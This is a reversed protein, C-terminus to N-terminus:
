ALRIFYSPTLYVRYNKILVFAICFCYDETFLLNKEGNDYKILLSFFFLATELVSKSDETPFPTQHMKRSEFILNGM